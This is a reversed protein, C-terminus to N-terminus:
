DKTLWAQFSFRGPLAEEVRTKARPLPFRKLWRSLGRKLLADWWVGPPLFARYVEGELRLLDPNLAERLHHVAVQLRKKPNKSEPFLRQALATAPLPGNQWLLLLLLLEKRSPLPLPGDQTKAELAGLSRVRLWGVGELLRELLAEEGAEFAFLPLLLAREWLWFDQFGVRVAEKALAKAEASSPEKLFLELRSLLVLRGAEVREALRLAEQFHEPRGCLRGAVLHWEAMEGPSGGEQFFAKARELSGRVGLQALGLHVLGLAYPDQARELSAEAERYLGEAEPFRAERFLDALNLLTYGLARYDGSAQAKQKAELLTRKAQLFQGLYRLAEGLSLLTYAQSLPTTKLPLVERYLRVAESLEGLHHRAIALNHLALAEVERKRERRALALAEELDSAAERYRGLRIRAAGRSTLFRARLPGEGLAVGQSFVREAEAHEGKLGLLTGRALLAEGLLNKDEEPFGELVALGRDLEGRMRHGLALLLRLRPSPHEVRDAHRFFVEVKGKELLPRGGRELAWLLLDEGYLSAVELAEEWAGLALAAELLRRAVESPPLPHTARLYAELAPLLRLPVGGALARELLAEVAENFGAQRFAAEPLPLRFPSLELPPLTGELFARLEPAFSAVGEELAKRTLHPWGGFLGYVEEALERRGLRRALERVEEPTFALEEPGLRHPAPLRARRTGVVQGPLIEPPAEERLDYCGPEPLWERRYHLGHAEAFSKLLLTKGFGAPAHLLVGEALGEELARFLRSRHLYM